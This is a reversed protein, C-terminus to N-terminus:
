GKIFEPLSKTEMMNKFFEIIQHMLKEIKKRLIELESIHKETLQNNEVM